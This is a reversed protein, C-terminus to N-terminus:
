QTHAASDTRASTQQLAAFANRRGAGRAVGAAREMSRLIARESRPLGLAQDISYFNRPSFPPRAGGKFVRFGDATMVRDGRRLTADRLITKMPDSSGCSCSQDVTKTFRMAVPLAFYSAGNVASVATSIEGNTTNYLRTPARPCALNCDEQTGAGTGRVPFFSGDCLRVCFARPKTKAPASSAAATRLAPPQRRPPPSSAPSPSTDAQLAAPPLVTAAPRITVVRNWPMSGMIRSLESRRSAQQMQAQMQQEYQHTAARHAALQRQYTQMRAAYQQQARQQVQAHQHQVYRQHALRQQYHHQQAQQQQAQRQLAQRQLAQRQLAQRQIAQRRQADMAPQTRKRETLWFSAANDDSAMVANAVPDLAVLAAAVVSFGLGLAILARRPLAFSAGAPVPAPSGGQRRIRFISFPM